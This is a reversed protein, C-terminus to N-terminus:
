DNKHKKYIRWMRRCDRNFWIRLFYVTPYILALRGKITIDGFVDTDEFSPDIILKKPMVPYILSLYMLIKGTTAPDEFGFHVNGKVKKPAIRVLLKIVCTKILEFAKRNREDNRMRDWFRIKKRTSEYKDKLGEYKDCLKEFFAEIKEFLSEKEATDNGIYANEDSVTASEGASSEEAETEDEEENWDITFDEENYTEIYGDEADDQSFDSDDTDDPEENEAEDDNKPRKKIGFIKIYKEASGDYKFGATVIHLLYSASADATLDGEQIGKHAIVRYRVPVFLVLALVLLVLGLVALLVIGIIKLITLFVAM